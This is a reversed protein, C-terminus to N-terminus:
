RTLVKLALNGESSSPRLPKSSLRSLCLLGDALLPVLMPPVANGIHKAARTMPEYFVFDDDFGQLAAAESVSIARDQDPHGFRGNSLSICRTTLTPASSDWRMRGYVDWHGGKGRSHCILKLEPPWKTRSGGDEPTARIRKLNIEALKTSEHNPIGRYKEGASIAPYKEIARRVTEYDLRNPGHTRPPFWPKGFKSAMLIFRRRKQPLGYYKAKIVKYAYQYGMNELGKVFASFLRGNWTRQFGPVNELFIYGPQEEKVLALFSLVLPIRDDHEDLKGQRSFPQCPLCASYLLEGNPPPHVDALIKKMAKLNRIDGEAFVAPACNAEYTQKCTGDLDIGKVVRVGATQLGKTTGGSGCAFDVAVIAARRRKQKLAEMVEDICLDPRFKIEHEWFRVVAWGRKKLAWNVQADRKINREIKAIWFKRNKRIEVKRTKWNYGHWFHSDAFVAVKEKPFAFDPKGEIPFYRTYKLGAKDLAEALQEELGTWRGRIRSMNFSVVKRPRRKPVRMRFSNDFKDTGSRPGRVLSPSQFRTDGSMM